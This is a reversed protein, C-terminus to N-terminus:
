KLQGKLAAIATARSAAVLDGVAVTRTHTAVTHNIIAFEAVSTAGGLTVIAISTGDIYEGACRLGAIGNAGDM